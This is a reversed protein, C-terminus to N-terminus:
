WIYTTGLSSLYKQMKTSSVLEMGSFSCIILLQFIVFLFIGSKEHLQKKQKHKKKRGQNVNKPVITAIPITMSYLYLCLCLNSILVPITIPISISQVSSSERFKYINLNLVLTSVFGAECRRKYSFLDCSAQLMQLKLSSDYCPRSTWFNSRFERDSNIEYM